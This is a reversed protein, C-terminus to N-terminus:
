KVKILGHETKSISEFRYLGRTSIKSFYDGCLKCRPDLNLDAVDKSDFRHECEKEKRLFSNLWHILDSM